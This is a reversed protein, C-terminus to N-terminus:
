NNLVVFFVLRLIADLSCYRNKSRFDASRKRAMGWLTGLDTMLRGDNPRQPSAKRCFFFYFFFPPFATLLHLCVVCVSPDMRLCHWVTKVSSKNRVKDRYRPPFLASWRPHWNMNGASYSYSTPRQKEQCSALIFLIARQNYQCGRPMM